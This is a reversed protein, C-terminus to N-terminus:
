YRGPWSLAKRLRFIQKFYLQKRVTFKPSLMPWQQRSANIWLVPLVKSWHTCGQWASIVSILSIIVIPQHILRFAVLILLIM